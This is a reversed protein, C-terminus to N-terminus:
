QDQIIPAERREGLFLAAVDELDDLIPVVAARRDQCALQWDIVPVVCNGIRGDGVGDEIAEHVVRVADGELALAHAFGSGVTGFKVDFLVCSLFAQGSDASDASHRGPRNRAPLFTNPLVLQGARDRLRLLVEICIGTEPTGNLPVIEQAALCFQDEELAVRLRQVWDMERVRQLLETDSTHHLEIRNRGKEKAMYCAVDATRVAEQVTTNPEVLHALGISASTRFSRNDWFFNAQEVARRLKEAIITAAAADCDTVLV